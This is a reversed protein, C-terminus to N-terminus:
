NLSTEIIQNYLFTEKIVGAFESDVCAHYNLFRQERRSMYGKLIGMYNADSIKDGRERTFCVITKVIRIYNDYESGWRKFFLGYCVQLETKEGEKIQEKYMQFIKHSIGYMNAVYKVRLHEDYEFEDQSNVKFDYGAPDEKLDYFGPYQNNSFYEKLYKLQTFAFTIFSSGNITVFTEKPPDQLLCVNFHIRNLQDFYNNLMNFFTTEFREQNAIKTQTTINTNQSKLSLYLLIGNAAAIICAVVGGTWTGIGEACKSTGCLCCITYGIILFFSLILLFRATCESFLCAKENHSCSAM